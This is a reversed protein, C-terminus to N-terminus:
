IYPIHEWSLFSNTVKMYDSEKNIGYLVILDELPLEGEKKLDEIQPPNPESCASLWVVKPIDALLKPVMVCM